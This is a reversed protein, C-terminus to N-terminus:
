KEMVYKKLAASADNDMTHLKPKFGKATIEDFVIGFARIWEAGTKSNLTIPRIYNADDSYCVM